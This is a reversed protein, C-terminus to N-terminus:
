NIGRVERNLFGFLDHGEGLVDDGVAGLVALCAPALFQGREEVLRRGARPQAERRRHHFEATLDDAEGVGVGRRHRLALRHGVGHAHDAAERVDDGHTVELLARRQHSRLIRADRDDVGAVAAVGMGRLSQGIKQRDLALFATEVVHRDTEAAVQFEAARDM